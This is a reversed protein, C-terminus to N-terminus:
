QSKCRQAEDLACRVAEAELQGMRAEIRRIRGAEATPVLCTIQFVDANLRDMQFSVVGLEQMRQHIAM